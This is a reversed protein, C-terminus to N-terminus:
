NLLALCDISAILAIMAYHARRENAFFAVIFQRTSLVGEISKIVSLTAM